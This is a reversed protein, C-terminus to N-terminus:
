KKYEEYVADGFAGSTSYPDPDFVMDEASKLTPRCNWIISKEEAFPPDFITYWCKVPIGSVPRELDVILRREDVDLGKEKFEELWEEWVTRHALYFLLEELHAIATVGETHKVVVVYEKRDREQFNEIFKQGATSISYGECALKERSEEVCRDLTNYFEAILEVSRNKGEINYNKEQTM